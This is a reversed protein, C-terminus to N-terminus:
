QFFKECFQKIEQLRTIVHEDNGAELYKPLVKISLAGPYNDAKLKTLLSELPIIGEQPNAYKKGHHFNSLHIHVLYKKMAEYTRMIDQRKEAIRSTDLSVHKFEKLDQLNSMARDPILGLISGSPANELAISIGEEERLKPIEKRLWSSLKFDLLKPPQVIVVKAHLTKAMQVLDKIRAGTIQDPASLSHIPLSYDTSLKQLYETNFTDFNGYNIAIDVGAYDAKKALEFIRNLGYGRLSETWLTLM